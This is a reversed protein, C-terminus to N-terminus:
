LVRLRPLARSPLKIATRTLHAVELVGSGLILRGSYGSLFVRESPLGEGAKMRTLSLSISCGPKNELATPAFGHGAVDLPDGALDGGQKGALPEVVVLGLRDEPDGAPLGPQLRGLGFLPLGARSVTSSSSHKM